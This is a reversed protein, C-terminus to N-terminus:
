HPNIGNDKAGSGKFLDTLLSSKARLLIGGTTVWGATATIAEQATQGNQMDEYIVYGAFALVGLGLITTLAGEKWLRKKM